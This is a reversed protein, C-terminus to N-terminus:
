RRGGTLAVRCACDGITQLCARCWPVADLHDLLRVIAADLVQAPSAERGGRAAREVQADIDEALEASVAIRVDASLGAAPRAARAAALMAHGRAVAAADRPASVAPVAPQRAPSPASGDLVPQLLAEVLSGMSVGHARCYEALRAHTAGSISLTPQRIM